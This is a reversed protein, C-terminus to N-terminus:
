ADESGPRLWEPPVDVDFIESTGDDHEIRLGYWGHPAMTLTAPEYGVTQDEDHMAPGVPTM